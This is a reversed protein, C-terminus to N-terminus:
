KRGNGELLGECLVVWSVSFMMYTKSSTFSIFPVGYDINYYKRILFLLRQMCIGWHGGCTETECM